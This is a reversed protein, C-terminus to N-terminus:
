SPPISVRTLEIEYTLATNAPIEVTDRRLKSKVFAGESGFGLSPPVEAVRKGGTKMTSLAEEFGVPLGPPLPRSGFIFAQGGKSVKRTDEYTEGGSFSAKYQVVVLYGKQPAQGGGAKLDRYSLGSATSVEKADTVEVTNARESAVEIRTKVQESVVGFALVGVWALGGALGFRRTLATSIADTSEAKRRPKSRAQERLRGADDDRAGGAPSGAPADDDGEGARCRGSAAGKRGKRGVRGGEARRGARSQARGAGRAGRGGKLALAM